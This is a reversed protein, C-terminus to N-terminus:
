VFERDILYNIEQVKKALIEDVLNIPKEVWKSKHNKWGINFM